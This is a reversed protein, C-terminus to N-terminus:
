LIEIRVHLEPLESIEEPLHQDIIGQRAAEKIGRGDSWSVSKLLILESAESVRAVRAAITDSTVTWTHPLPPHPSSEDDLLFSHPELIPIRNSSWAARCGALNAVVTSNPLLAEILYSNFTMARVALWHAKQMELEDLRDRLRVLDAAPGGGVVVILHPTNLSSLRQRLKQGLSPLGLLSGGVKVVIIRSGNVRIPDSRM